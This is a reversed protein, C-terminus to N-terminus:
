SDKNINFRTGKIRFKSKIKNDLHNVCNFLLSLLEQLEDNEIIKKKGINEEAIKMRNIYRNNIICRNHVFLNRIEVAVFLNQLDTKDALSLGFRNNFYDSLDTLSLYSLQNVKREAVFLVLDNITEQSLAEALTINESSRLTMPKAIFIQHMIGALYNVYNEVNRVYLVEKFMDMHKKMTILEISQKKSQELYYDKLKKDTHLDSLRKNLERQFDNAKFALGFVFFYFESLKKHEIYFDKASKSCITPHKISKNNKSM